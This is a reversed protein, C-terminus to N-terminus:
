LALIEKTKELFQLDRERIFKGQYDEPSDARIKSIAEDLTLWIIKFGLSLEKKTFDPEGKSIIKGFYCYSTQKLKWESRFEIIVGVDGNVDIECGVEELCERALAESLTEGEDVGGGPLKHYNKKSVFLLPVMQKEDFLVARAGKRKKLLSEDNPYEADKIEKLLEM